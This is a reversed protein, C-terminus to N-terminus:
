SRHAKHGRRGDLRGLTRGIRDVIGNVFARYFEERQSDALRLEEPPKDETARIANQYVTTNFWLSERMVELQFNKNSM